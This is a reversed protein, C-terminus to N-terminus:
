KVENYFYEGVNRNYFGDYTIGGTLKAFQRAERKNGIFVIKNDIVVGFRKSKTFMNRSRQKPSLAADAKTM